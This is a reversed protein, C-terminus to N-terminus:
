FAATTRAITCPNLMGISATSSAPVMWTTLGARSFSNAVGGRFQETLRDLDQDRGRQTAGVGAVATVVHVFRM